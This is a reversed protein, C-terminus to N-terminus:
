LCSVSLAAALHSSFAELQAKTEELEIEATAARRDAAAKAETVRVVRLKLEKTLSTMESAHSCLEEYRAHKETSKTREKELEHAVM